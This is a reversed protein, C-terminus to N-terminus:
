LNKRNRYAQLAMDKLTNAMSKGTMRVMTSFLGDPNQLLLHPEDFEVVQGANLVLVRDMDVITHLRHAITLVTCKAFKERITQQILSDTKPDVNATAEDLVLINNQKLLARALCILQRQGVSFNSGGDAVKADLGGSMEHVADKLCVEDLVEWLRQDNHDGFPDINRRVPGAFLVPDQPIISIKSRLDTLSIQSTDIGDIKIYGTPLTMRFLAAIISSKGAGTRGVVGVKENSNINFTLNKLVQTEDNSYALSVNDFQLSGTSPWSSPPRNNDHTSELNPETPLNSFEAVREVSTMHSELEVSQKVGWQFTGCISIASSIALGIASSTSNEYNLTMLLTVATLYLWLLWDLVIAFWRSSSLFLFWTATHNDQYIDFQEEFSQQAGFARVTTLGHLSNALHSFVPSKTIGELRKFSRGSMLYYKRLYVFLVILIFTPVIVWYDILAILILVGWLQFFIEITDFATQPIQDDILGMDRSCRNLLIGIPHNDFFSISTRIISNFFKNHLKISSRMCITFFVTTRILSMFFLLGVMVAFAIILLNQDWHEILTVTLGQERQTWLSLFYDSGNFLLQTLVNSSILTFILFFGGGSTLYLWYIRGGVSGKVHIEDSKTQVKEGEIFDITEISKKSVNSESRIKRSDSDASTPMVIYDDTKDLKKDNNTSKIFEIGSNLLQQYSGVAETHGDNLVLIQHAHKLFQLQHTALIVVKNKLYGCICKEFIHKSVASDVASLPDDLLYIDAEYYLARALNIRAKQGGSLSVGREGIITQDGNPFLQLDKELACVHLVNRYKTEDYASGFLVNDRVTGAFSWPQQSAYAVKGRVKIHGFTIPIESLISMLVSSKGSGVPGVIVMIQGVAVKFTIDHLTIDSKNNSGTWSANVKNLWVGTVKNSDNLDNGMDIYKTKTQKEELLLFEQIRKISILAESGQSIAYPFLLTLSNRLGNFLAMSMFVIQATIKGGNLIFVVLCIFIIIKSSVFFLAMNVGRLLSSQRIKDVERHRALAVLKAFPKEWTYMKIVRMSPIIENMLRIREDTLIATKARLKSFLRGMFMQFPIYVIFVSCGVFVSWDLSFYLYSIVVIANLPGTIIFPIFTFSYDFRSVDNSILNVMQGVTTRSLAKHSLRLAKRYILHCCAIRLQMGKRAMKFFYPNLIFNYVAGSIIVMLTMLYFNQLDLKDNSKKYKDLYIILYAMAIPQGTRVICESLISLSGAMFYWFGFARIIARLLSMANGSDKCKLIEKDWERQLKTGLTESEDIKPCKYLDHLGLDNKYGKYLLPNIWWFLNRNIFNASDYPNKYNIRSNKIDM